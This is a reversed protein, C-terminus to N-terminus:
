VRSSFVWHNRGSSFASRFLAQLGRLKPSRKQYLSFGLSPFCSERPQVAGQHPPWAQFGPRGTKITEWFILQLPQDQLAPTGLLERPDRKKSM